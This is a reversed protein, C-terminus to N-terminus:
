ISQERNNECNRGADTKRYVSVSPTNFHTFSECRNDRHASISLIGEVCYNKNFYSVYYIKIIM